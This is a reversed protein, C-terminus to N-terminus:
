KTKRSIIAIGLGLTMCLKDLNSAKMDSGENVFRTLVRLGVGSDISLRYLSIGSKKIHEKIQESITKQM